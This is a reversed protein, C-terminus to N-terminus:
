AESGFTTSEFGGTGQVPLAASRIAVNRQEHTHRSLKFDGAPVYVRRYFMGNTHLLM